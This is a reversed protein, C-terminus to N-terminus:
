YPRVFPFHTDLVLQSLMNLDLLSGLNKKPWEEPWKNVEGVGKPSLRCRGQLDKCLEFSSCLDETGVVFLLM